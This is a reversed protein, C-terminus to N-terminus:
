SHCDAFLIDAIERRYLQRTGFALRRRTEAILDELEARRVHDREMLIQMVPDDLLEALSPEAADRSLGFHRLPRITSM